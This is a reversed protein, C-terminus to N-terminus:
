PSQAHPLRPRSHDHLSEAGRGGGPAVRQLGRVASEGGSVRSVGGWSDFIYIQKLSSDSDSNHQLM